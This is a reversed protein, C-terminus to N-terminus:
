QYGINKYYSFEHTKSQNELDIQMKKLIKISEQHNGYLEHLNVFKFQIERDNPCLNIYDKLRNM